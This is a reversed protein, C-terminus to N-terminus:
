FKYAIDMGALWSHGTWTGNQGTAYQPYSGGLTPVQNSGQNNVTRDKKDIYIGAIDVTWNGFKLGAGLMYYLRDADPLEPGLTEAPVPSPDYSFGARLAVPNSVRYELGTRLACVDRWNKPSSTSKPLLATNDKFNLDLSKYSSWFTWDADVEVTLRDWIYAVGFAATAPMKITTSGTTHYSSGGFVQQPTLGGLPIIPTNSINSLDVDAGEIELTFPSRFNFGVRLEKTPKLLIGFNYGWATGDGDLKANYANVPNNGIPVGPAVNNLVPTRELTAMGYIFDVGIGVSLYENIDFAITPNIVITKLDIKTIQNRFISTNENEYEQGLGFPTFVGLGYAVGSGKSTYTYYMNPLFFDLDKQTESVTAGNTLPTTGTFEGGPLNTYTVGLAINNKELQTLGAPNYYIASPNDAQATFAFGMANAKNGAEPLRFGAAFSTSASLLLVLLVAL